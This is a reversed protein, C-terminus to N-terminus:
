SFENVLLSVQLNFVIKNVVFQEYRMILLYNTFIVLLDTIYQLYLLLFCNGDLTVNVCIRM